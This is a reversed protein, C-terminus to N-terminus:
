PPCSGPAPADKASYSKGAQFIATGGFSMCYKRAGTTLVVSVPTPAVALSDGLGAGKGSAKVLKGSKLTLTKVPGNALLKDRYVYGKGAGQAGLYVWSGAPLPYTDDFGASSVRLSGGNLTPDDPSGNGSGLGVTPDK